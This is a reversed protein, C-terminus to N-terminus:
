REREWDEEQNLRDQLVYIKDRLKHNEMRLNNNEIILKEWDSVLKSVNNRIERQDLNLNEYRGESKIMLNNINDVRSYISSTKEIINGKINAESQKINENIDEHQGSLTTNNMTGIKSDIKDYGRRNTFVNTILVVIVGFIGTILSAIVTEMLIDGWNM